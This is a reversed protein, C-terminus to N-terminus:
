ITSSCWSYWQENESEDQCKECFKTLLGVKIMNNTSEKYFYLDPLSKGFLCYENQEIHFEVVFGLARLEHEVHKCYHQNKTITMHYSSLVLSLKDVVKCYQQQISMMTVILGSSEIKGEDLKKIMEEVKPM